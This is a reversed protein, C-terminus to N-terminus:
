NNNINNNFSVTFNIYNIEKWLEKKTNNDINITINNYTLGIYPLALGSNQSFWFEQPIYLETESM